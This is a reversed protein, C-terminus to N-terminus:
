SATLAQREPYNRGSSPCICHDLYIFFKYLSINKHHPAAYASQHSSDICRILPDIDDHSLLGICFPAAGTGGPIVMKQTIDRINVAIVHSRDDLLCPVAENTSKM